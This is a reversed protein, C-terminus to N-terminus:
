IAVMWNAMVVPAAAPLTNKSRVPTIPTKECKSIGTKFVAEDMM